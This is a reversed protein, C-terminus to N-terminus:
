SAANVTCIKVSHSGPLLENHQKKKKTENARFCQQLRKNKIERSTQTLFVQKLFHWRTNQGFIESLTSFNLKTEDAINPAERTLTQLPSEDRVNHCIHVLLGAAM